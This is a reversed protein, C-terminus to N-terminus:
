RREGQRRVLGHWKRGRNTLDFSLKSGKGSSNQAITKPVPPGIDGRRERGDSTQESKRRRKKCIHGASAVTKPGFVTGTLRFDWLHRIGGM